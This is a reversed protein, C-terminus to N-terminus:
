DARFIRYIGTACSFFIDGEVSIAIGFPDVPLHSAFVSVDGEPTVKRIEFEDLPHALLFADDSPSVALDVECCPIEDIFEALLKVNGDTTIEFLSTLTPGLGINEMYVVCVM